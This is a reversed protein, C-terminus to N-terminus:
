AEPPQWGSCHYESLTGIKYPTVPKEIANPLCPHVTTPEVVIFGCLSCSLMMNCAIGNCNGQPKQKEHKCAGKAAMKSCCNKAKEPKVTAVGQFLSLLLICGIVLLALFKM